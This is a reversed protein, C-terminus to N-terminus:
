ETNTGPRMAGGMAPDGKGQTFSLALYAPPKEGILEYLNTLNMRFQKEFNSVAEGPNYDGFWWFWDSGECVALQRQAKQLDTEHLKNSSVVRDYAAKAEGLMEWGRNKDVDGIWTSFSGYVWSGAVLRQLPKVANSEDLSESFTTLSITEHSSLRKYLANLFYYGNNPFYEWANEGDMIISVISDKPCHTAINELHQILDNVADDAHWKSYEFGILDSLGDDRFFCAIDCNALQFPHHVNQTDDNEPLELSNRLVSGGSAAWKFGYSGLLQLTKESVSGESPWCGAPKFGFFRKFTELGVDLHWRVREEGNPYQELDPLPADPMAEHASDLDLMLPMIPHAYPTVSLEVQGRKALTRYRCIISSIQESIITLLELRDHSSFGVGKEILHKARNDTLKITEGLWALHYWVLIDHVFQPKIYDLADFNKGLWEAMDTLKQFAPFRNVQRERNARLCDKVLRMIEEPEVPLADDALASLLPDKIPTRAQLYGALQSAYDEIQELLIPAFNVVAKAEPVAELHAAMDAYDKIVHLYTWPLIFKGTKLDRYEPQHMHWCLVLRLKSAEM